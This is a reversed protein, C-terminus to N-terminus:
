PNYGQQMRAYVSEDTPAFADPNGRQITVIGAGNNEYGLVLDPTGNEDLDASAMAQPRALSSRLASASSEDGTYEVGLPRVTTGDTISTGKTSMEWTEAVTSPAVFARWVRPMGAIAVVAGIAVLSVVIFRSRASSLM